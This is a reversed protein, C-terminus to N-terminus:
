RNIHHITKKNNDIVNISKKFILGARYDWSLGLTQPTDNKRSIVPNSKNITQQLNKCRHKHSIKEM